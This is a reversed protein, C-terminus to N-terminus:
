PEHSTRGGDTGALSRLAHDWGTYRDRDLRRRLAGLTAAVAMWSLVTVTGDKDVWFDVPAGARVMKPATVTGVHVGDAALWRATTDFTQSEGVVHLDAGTSATATIHHRSIAQRAFTSAVSDKVAMGLAAAGSIALVMPVMAAALTELRDSRRVLPNRGVLRALWSRGWDLPLTDM